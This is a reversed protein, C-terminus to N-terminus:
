IWDIKQRRVMKSSIDSIKRAGCMYMADELESKIKNLYCEIGEQGGGYYSILVPRCILCMDAGLALAKFVDNGTRIGGDVMIKTKGKVAEVIEPLVDATGPTEALARGGHNSVIIADAGAEVAKLASEATMIGKIIFPTKAYDKLEKLEEVTKTGAKTHLKKLHPLGASDVVISMAPPLIGGKYLDMLAKIDEVTNPNFVPIGNNGHNRGSAIASDWVRKELGNGFAHTIKLTECAAMCKENFDAVDDTPNFQLKISGIPATMLPFGYTRGLFETQTSIPTKEVITDMNLKIRKWANYNDNAGNGPAKSGPGPMTNGCGLGNCVPCVKCNQGINKRANELVETYEM